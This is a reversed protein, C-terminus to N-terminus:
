TGSQPNALMRNRYGNDDANGGYYNGGIGSVETGTTFVLLDQLNTSGTDRMFEETVVQIASPVDRLQTNLRSGALSSTAAYGTDQTSEVEFPSLQVVPEDETELEPNAATQASVPFAATVALVAPVVPTRLRWLRRPHSMRNPTTMPNPHNKASAQRRLHPSVASRDM